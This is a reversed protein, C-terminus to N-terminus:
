VRRATAPGIVSTVLTISDIPFQCQRAHEYILEPTAADFVCYFKNAVVYSHLWTIDSGLGDLISLWSAALRELEIIPVTGVETISREVIYRAVDRRREM